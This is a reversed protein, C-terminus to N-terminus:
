INTKRSSRTFILNNLSGVYYQSKEDKIEYWRKFTDLNKPLTEWNLNMNAVSFFM